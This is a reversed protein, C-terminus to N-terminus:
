RSQQTVDFDQLNMKVTLAVERIESMRERLNDAEAEFRERDAESEKLLDEMPFRQWYVIKRIEGACFEKKKGVRGGGSKGTLRWSLRAEGDLNCADVPCQDLNCNRTFGFSLREAFYWHVGNHVHMENALTRSLVADREGFAGLTIVGSRTDLAGVFVHTANEPVGVLDQACTVHKYPRDFHLHWGDLESLQM